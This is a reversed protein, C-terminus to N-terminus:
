DEEYIFLFESHDKVGAAQVEGRSEPIARDNGSDVGLGEGGGGGATAGVGGLDNRELIVALGSSTTTLRSSSLDLRTLSDHDQEEGQAVHEQLLLIKSSSSAPPPVLVHVTSQEPLDCGQSFCTLNFYFYM